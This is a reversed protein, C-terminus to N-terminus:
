AVMPLYGDASAVVLLFAERTLRYDDITHLLGRRTPTLRDIPQFHLFTDARPWYSRMARNLVTLFAGWKTYGLFQATERASYYEIGGEMHRISAGFYLRDEASLRVPSNSEM